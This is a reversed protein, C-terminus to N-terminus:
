GEKCCTNIQSNGSNIRRVSAALYWPQIQAFEVCAGPGAETQIRGAGSLPPPAPLRLPLTLDLDRRLHVPLKAQLASITPVQAGGPPLLPKRWQQVFAGRQMLSKLNQSAGPCTHPCTCALFINACHSGAEAVAQSLQCQSEPMEERVGSRTLSRSQVNELSNPCGSFM